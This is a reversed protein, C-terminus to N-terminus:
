STPLLSAGAHPLPPASLATRMRELLRKKSKALAQHSKQLLPAIQRLPLNSWYILQLLRREEPTLIATAQAVLGRRETIAAPTASDDVTGGHTEWFSAASETQDPRSTREWDRRARRFENYLADHVRRAAYGAFQVGTAADYSHVSEIIALRAISELEDLPAVARLYRERSARRVLPAYREVVEMLASSEGDAARAILAAEAAPALYGASTSAPRSDRCRTPLHSIASATALANTNTAKKM